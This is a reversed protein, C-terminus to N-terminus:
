VNGVNSLPEKTYLLLGDIKSMLIITDPTQRAAICSSALSNMISRWLLCPSYHPVQCHSQSTLCVAVVKMILQRPNFTSEDVWGRQRTHSWTLYGLFSFIVFCGRICLMTYVRYDWFCNKHMFGPVDRLVKFSKKVMLSNLFRFM